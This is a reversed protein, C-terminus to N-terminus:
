KTQSTGAIKATNWKLTMEGNQSIVCVKDEKVKELYSHVTNSILEDGAAPLDLTVPDTLSSHMEIPKSNNGISMTASQRACFGKILYAQGAPLFAVTAYKKSNEMSVNSLGIHDQDIYDCMQKGTASSIPADRIPQNQTNGSEIWKFLPASSVSQGQKFLGYLVSAKKGLPTITMSITTARSPTFKWGTGNITLINGEKTDLYETGVSPKITGGEAKTASIITKGITIINLSEDSSAFPIGYDKNSNSSAMEGDVPLSLFVNNALNAAGLETQLKELSQPNYFGIVWKAARIKTGWSYNLTVEYKGSTEARTFILKSGFEGFEPIGNEKIDSAYQKAFDSQFKESHNDGIIYSNFEIKEKYFDLLTEYGEPAKIM